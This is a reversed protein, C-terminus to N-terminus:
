KYLWALFLLVFCCLVNEMMVAFFIRTTKPAVPLWPPETMLDMRFSGLVALSNLIRPMVRSGEFGLACAKVALPTSHTAASM